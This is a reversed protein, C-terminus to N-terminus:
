LGYQAQLKPLLAAFVLTFVVHPGIRVYYTPFGTYFALPGENRLTKLACDVPGTYPMTGDPNPKMKQIRTKVFDFPLSAASAFFGAIMAAGATNSFGKVGAAELVEKAQENTAFMGTNLAMARVVTPACGRFLGGFGDEKVIRVFADGVGKYNRRQEPPLTGDAQPPLPPPPSASPKALLAM